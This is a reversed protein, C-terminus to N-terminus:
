TIQLPRCQLCSFAPDQKQTLVAVDSYSCFPMNTFFDAKAYINDLCFCRVCGASSLYVDLANLKSRVAASLTPDSARSQSSTAAEAEVDNHSRVMVSPSVIQSQTSM